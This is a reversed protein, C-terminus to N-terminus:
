RHNPLRRRRRSLRPLQAWELNRAPGKRVKPRRLRLSVTAPCFYFRRGRRKVGGSLSDRGRPVVEVKGFLQLPLKVSCHAPEKASARHHNNQPRIGAAKNRSLCVARDV